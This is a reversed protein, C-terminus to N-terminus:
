AVRVCCYTPITHAQAELYWVGLGRDHSTSVCPAHMMACPMHCLVPCCRTSNDVCSSEVRGMFTGPDVLTLTCWIWGTARAHLLSCNLQFGRHEPACPQVPGALGQANSCRATVPSRALTSRHVRTGIWARKVRKPPNNILAPILAFSLHAEYKISGLTTDKATTLSRVLAPVANPPYEPVHLAVATPHLAAPMLPGVSIINM